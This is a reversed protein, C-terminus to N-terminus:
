CSRLGEEIVSEDDSAALLGLFPVPPVVEGVDGVDGVEGVGVAKARPM